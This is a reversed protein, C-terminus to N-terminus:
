SFFFETNKTISISKKLQLKMLRVNKSLKNRYGTMNQYGTGIARTGIVIAENVSMNQYGTELVPCTKYGTEIVLTQVDTTEIVLCTEIGNEIVM